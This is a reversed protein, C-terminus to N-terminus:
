TTVKIEPACNPVCKPLEARMWIRLEGLITKAQATECQALSLYSQKKHDPM